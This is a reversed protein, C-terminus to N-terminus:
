GPVLVLARRASCVLKHPPSIAPSCSQWVSCCPAHAACVCLAPRLNCRCIYPMSSLQAELCRHSEEWSIHTRRPPVVFEMSGSRNQDDVLDITWLM